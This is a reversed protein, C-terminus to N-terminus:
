AKLKLTQGGADLRWGEGTGLAAERRNGHHHSHIALQVGKLGARAKQSPRYGRRTAQLAEWGGARTWGGQKM